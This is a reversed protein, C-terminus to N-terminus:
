GIPNWVLVTSTSLAVVHGNVNTMDLVSNPASLVATQKPPFREFNWVGISTLGQIFVINDMAFAKSAQQSRDMGATAVTRLVNNEVRVETFALSGVAILSGRLPFVAVCLTAISMSSLVTPPDSTTNWLVLSDTSRSVVLEPSLQLFTQIANTHPTNLITFSTTVNEDTLDWVLLSGVTTGGMLRTGGSIPIIQRVTILMDSFLVGLFTYNQTVDDFNWWQVAGNGRSLTILKDAASVVTRLSTQTSGVFSLLPILTNNVPNLMPDVTVVTSNEFGIFLRNNIVSLTSLLSLTTGGFSLINSPSFQTLPVGWGPLEILSHVLAELTSVRARLDQNEQQLRQIDTNDLRGQLLLSGNTPARIVLQSGELGVFGEDDVAMASHLALALALALAVLARM